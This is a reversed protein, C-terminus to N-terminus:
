ARRLRIRLLGVGVLAVIAMWQNANLGLFHAWLADNRFFEAFFRVILYGGAIMVGATGPKPRVVWAVTAIIATPVVIMWPFPHVPGLASAMGGFQAEIGWFWSTPSGIDCGNFYCGVRSVLLGLVCATILVDFADARKEFFYPVTAFAFIGGGFIAGFSVAAIKGTLAISAIASGFMAGGITLALVTMLHPLYLERGRGLVLTTGLASLLAFGLFVTQHM